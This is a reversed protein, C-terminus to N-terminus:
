LLAAHISGSDHRIRLLPAALDQIKEVPAEMSWAASAVLIWCHTQLYPWVQSLYPILIM